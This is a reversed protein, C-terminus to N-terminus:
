KDLGAIFEKMRENIEDPKINQMNHKCNLEATEINDCGEAYSYKSEIWSPGTTATGAGILILMPMAPKPNSNIEACADPVGLVENVYSKNAMNKYILAKYMAMDEDSLIDGHDSIATNILRGVGLKILHNLLDMSKYTGEADFDNYDDPFAPDIGIIAELEDPYKQAWLLAELGGMSHPCLIYPAEVGAKELAERDQRIMTDVSRDTDVIDSSGYGFKEIVAIKNDRSQVDTLRKLDYVPSSTGFGAIFVLTHEGEGETYINMIHGDIEVREGPYSKLLENEKNLMVQNIVTMVILFVVLLILLGLLIKGIIKLAKKM